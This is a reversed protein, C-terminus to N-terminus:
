DSWIIEAVAPADEIIPAWSVPAKLTNHLSALLKGNREIGFIMMPSVVVQRLDPAVHAPQWASVDTWSRGFDHSASLSTSGGAATLLAAGLGNPLLSLARAPRADSQAWNAGGDASHFLGDHTAVLLLDPRSILAVVGSFPAHLASWTEGGDDSRHLAGDGGTLFLDDARMPHATVRWPRAGGQAATVTLQEWTEGGDLSRYLAGPATTLYLRRPNVVDCAISYVFPNELGRGMPRWSGGGNVSRFLGHGDAGAFLVDRQHPSSAITLFSRGRLQTHRVQWRDSGGAPDEHQMIWVGDATAACLRM